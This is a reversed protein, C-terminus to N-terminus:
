LHEARAAKYFAESIHEHPDYQKLMSMMMDVQSCLFNFPNEFHNSFTDTNGTM